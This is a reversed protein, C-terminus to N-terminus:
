GAVATYLFTAERLIADLDAGFLDGEGVGDRIDTAVDCKLDGFVEKAASRGDVFCGHGMREGEKQRFPPFIDFRETKKGTTRVAVAAVTIDRCHANTARSM